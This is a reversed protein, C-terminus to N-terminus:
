APLIPQQQARRPTFKNIFSKLFNKDDENEPSQQQECSCCFSNMKKIKKLSYLITPITALILGVIFVTESNSM